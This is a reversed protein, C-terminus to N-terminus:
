GKAIVNHLAETLEANRDELKCVKEDLCRVKDTLQRKSDECEIYKGQMDELKTDVAKLKEELSTGLGQWIGVAKVVNDLETTKATKKGQNFATVAATVTTVVGAGATFIEGIYENLGSSM